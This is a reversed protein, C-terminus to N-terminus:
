RAGVDQPVFFQPSTVGPDSSACRRCQCGNSLAGSAPRHSIHSSNSSIKVVEAM